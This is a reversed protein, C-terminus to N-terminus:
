KLEIGKLRLEQKLAAVVEDINTLQPAVKVHSVDMGLGRWHNFGGKGENLSLDHAGADAANQPWVHYHQPPGGDNTFTDWSHPHDRLYPIGSEILHSEIYEHAIFREFKVVEAPDLDRRGAAELIDAIDNRPTFYAKRASGPADAVVHETLFFHTRVRDLVDTSVGTNESITRIDLLGPDARVRDYFRAAGIDEPAPEEIYRAGDPRVESSGPLLPQTSGDGHGLEGGDGTGPGGPPSNDAASGGPRDHGIAPDTGPAETRASPMHDGVNDGSPGRGAASTASHDASNAPVNNGVGGGPAHHGMDGGPQHGGARGADGANDGVRGGAGVLAPERVPTEVRPASTDAGKPSDATDEVKNGNSDYLHGERDMYPAGEAFPSKVTGEPLAVVGEPLQVTGDRLKVAGDPIATGAPLDVTGDPFRVAGEPLTFINDPLPPIEVAGSGKLGVMVDSIKTLGAGAGKFVYTMPDIIRGAKGAFSLAKAAVAAKGAGSVGGGAGGTFVTTLVNFTVAGAARSPNEGWQDWALLAKGTEKMARRSDRAFGPLRNEPTAWLLGPAAVTLIIGTTLDQLGSWAQKAADWGDTGFLTGLGKITGWVGDVFVGKTFDWLHEGLHWWPKSEEVPDGWPLGKAHKLAEADYGYTGEKGSGDDTKLPTGGVLAVIKAHCAREVAQFAAWTEAIENHRNNNEEVLDGDERWQDDANAKVLFAGADRKLEKLKEVLPYADDSYTSLASAITSLDSKLSLGTDAVPKTTAFLQEAEPARYFAQLGGFSSHVDGTSTSITSGSKTLATVQTDLLALNGTFVPIGELAVPDNESM